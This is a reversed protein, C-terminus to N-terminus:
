QLCLMRDRILDLHSSFYHRLNWKVIKEQVCVNITKAELVHVVPLIVEVNLEAPANHM